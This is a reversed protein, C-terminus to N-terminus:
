VNPHGHNQAGIIAAYSPCRVSIRIWVQVAPITTTFGTYGGAKIVDCAPMRDYVPGYKFIQRGLVIVFNRKCQTYPLKRFQLIICM